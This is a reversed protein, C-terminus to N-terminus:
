VSWGGTTMLVGAWNALVFVVAAVGLVVVGPDVVGVVVAQSETGSRPSEPPRAEQRAPEANPLALRRAPGFWAVRRALERPVREKLV